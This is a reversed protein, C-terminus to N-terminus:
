ASISGSLSSGSQVFYTGPSPNSSTAGSLSPSSGVSLTFLCGYVTNSPPLSSGQTCSVTFTVSGGPNANTSTPSISCSYGSPSSTISATFYVKDGSPANVSWDYDNSGSKSSPSISGWADHWTVLWSAGLSDNTVSVSISNSGSPPQTSTEQCTVNFVQESGANYTNTLSSPTIQCEYGGPNKTISATFSIQIPVYPPNIYWAYPQSQSISYSQGAYSWTVQWGANYPDNVIASILVSNSQPLAQSILAISNITSVNANFEKIIGPYNMPSVLVNISTPEYGLNLAYVYYQGTNLMLNPAYRHISGNIDRVYVYRVQAQYYGINYMPIYLTGNIYIPQPLYIYLGTYALRANNATSVTMTLYTLGGILVLGLAIVLILTIGELVLDALAM